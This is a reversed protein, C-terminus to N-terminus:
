RHIEDITVTVGTEDTEVGDNRPKDSDDSCGAVGLWGSVVLITAIAGRSLRTM